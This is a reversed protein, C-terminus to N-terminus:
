IGYVWSVEGKKNRRLRWGRAEMEPKYDTLRQGAILGGKYAEAIIGRVQAGTVSISQDEKGKAIAEEVLEEYMLLFKELILQLPTTDDQSLDLFDKVAWKADEATLGGLDILVAIIPRFITWDDTNFMSPSRRLYKFAELFSECNHIRSWHGRLANRLNTYNCEEPAILDEILPNDSDKKTRIFICRRKLESYEAEFPYSETTSFAKPGFTQFRIISGPQAGCITVTSTSRDYGYRLMAFRDDDEVFARKCDDFVLCYNPVPCEELEDYCSIKKIGTRISAFSSSAGLPTVGSLAAIVKMVQSKGSGTTGLAVLIPAINLLATPLCAFASLIPLQLEQHPLIISAAFANKVNDFLPLGPDYSDKDAGLM